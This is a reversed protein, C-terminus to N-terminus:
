VFHLMVILYAAIAGVIMIAADELVSDRQKRQTKYALQTGRYVGYMREHRRRVENIRAKQLKNM